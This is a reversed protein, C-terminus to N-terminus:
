VIVAIKESKGDIMERLAHIARERTQRGRDSLSKERKLDNPSVLRNIAVIHENEPM